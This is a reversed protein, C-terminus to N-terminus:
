EAGNRFFELAVVTAITAEFTSIPRRYDTHLVRWTKLNAISREVIWRIKNVATNFQKEWDLLDRHKPTRIPTLMGKGIYGKDGIRDGPDIGDLAASADLAASDHRCGDVPDSVWRLRGSLDCMVQLNMGTTRHKGSYLEPQDRWSWCPVLTGDVVLPEDDPLEEVTPVHERLARELWGTVTTIARSITSQSTDHWEALEVQRYNRRLYALAVCVCTFLGLSPPHGIAQGSGAACKEIRNTIEVIEDRRFGTTHYM